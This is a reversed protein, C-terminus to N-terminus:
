FAHLGASYGTSFAIQLNYGGTLADVDIVEGCFFLGKILKSEMTKPDIEKVSVGGSTVIAEKLSRLGSATLEMEKLNHVLINRNKKTLQNLNTDGDIKLVELLKSTLNKPLLQNIVTKLAKNKGQQGEMLLSELEETTTDPLFDIRLKVSKELLYQNLYASMELIAPGSLGFHTFIMAGERVIKKKKDVGATVRVKELSIGMLEKIWEESIAIPVLSPKPPIITHGLPTVLSYGEGTSGTAPYSQGGTAVILSTAEIIKNNDLKLGTIKQDKFIIEKATNGYLIQVKHEQLLRDWLAIIDKALNTVPFVKGGEEVKLPVGRKEVYSILDQSTFGHLAKYLFKGNKVTKKIMEDPTAINTLNCRGGGTIMLKKGIEKNKEVLIVKKNQTAATCAAMLGAPGGGLVIVTNNAM